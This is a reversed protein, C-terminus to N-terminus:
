FSTKRPLGGIAAPHLDPHRMLILNDIIGVREIGAGVAHEGLNWGM